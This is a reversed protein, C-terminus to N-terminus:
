PERAPLHRDVWAEFAARARRLRSTATGLPIELTRAIEPLSFGVLEYLVFVERQEDPLTALVVDLRQRRQELDLLSEPSEVTGTQADLDEVPDERLRAQQRRVNAAVKAAIGLLYPRERGLEVIELRGAFQMFVHQAADDANREHVGLRRLARWVTSFHSTLAAALRQEQEASRAQLHSAELSEPSAASSSM